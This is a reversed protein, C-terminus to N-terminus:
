NAANDLNAIVEEIAKAPLSGDMILSDILPTHKILATRVSASFDQKHEKWYDWRMQAAEEAKPKRALSRADTDLISFTKILSSKAAPVSRQGRKGLLEGVIRAGWTNVTTQTGEDCLQDYRKRLDPRTEMEHFVDDIVAVGYPRPLADLAERILAKLPGTGHKDGHWRGVYFLRQLRSRDCIADNCRISCQASTEGPCRRLCDPPVAVCRIV